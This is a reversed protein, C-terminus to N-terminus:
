ATTLSLKWPPLPNAYDDGNLPTEGRSLTFLPASESARFVGGDVPRFRDCVMKAALAFVAAQVWAQHEGVDSSSVEPLGFAYMGDTMIMTADGMVEVYFHFISTKDNIDLKSLAHPTLAKCSTEVFVGVAGLKVAQMVAELGLRPWDKTSDDAYDVSLRLVSEHERVAKADAADIAEARQAVFIFDEAFDADAEGFELEFETKIAPPNGWPGAITLIIRGM